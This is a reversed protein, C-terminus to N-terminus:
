TLAALTILPHPWELRWTKHVRDGTTLSGARSGIEPMCQRALPLARESRKHAALGFAAMAAPNCRRLSGDAGFILVPRDQDAQSRWLWAEEPSLDGALLGALLEPVRLRYALAVVMGMTGIAMLTSPYAPAGFRFNLVLCGALVGLYLVPLAALGSRVSQIRAGIVLGSCLSAIALMAGIIAAVTFRKAMGGSHSEASLALFRSRDISGYVPLSARSRSASREVGFIVAKGKLRALVDPRAIETLTYTPISGPDLRLDIATPRHDLKGTVLWIAPNGLSSSSPLQIRRFYGDTDGLLGLDLITASRRLPEPALFAPDTTQAFAVKDRGFSSFAQALAIDGSTIRQGAPLFADLLIRKAGAAHLAAVRQALIQRLASPSSSESLDREVINVAVFQGSTPLKQSATLLDSWVRDAGNDLRNFWFIAGIMFAIAVSKTTLTWLM